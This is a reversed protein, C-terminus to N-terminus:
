HIINEFKEKKFEFNNLYTYSPKLLNKHCTEEEMNTNKVSWGLLMCIQQTLNAKDQFLKLDM